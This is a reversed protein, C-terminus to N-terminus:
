SWAGVGQRPVTVFDYPALPGLLRLHIRGSWKAAFEDVVQKVEPLRHNEVLLAAHVADQEHTAEREVLSVCLPALIGLLAQTHTARKTMLAHYVIEGLRIREARTTADPTGHIQERLQVAEPTEDLVEQLVAHEVFRGKVVFETRGRLETLATFFEDHHPALLEDVIDLPSRMVAGFRLPLVPVQISTEDLLREHALLDDPTGIPRELEIESVLAGIQSHRVIGVRGRAAPAIQVQSPVIGYVYCATGPNILSGEEATRPTEEPRDFTRDTLGPDPLTPDPVPSGGTQGSPRPQNPVDFSGLDHRHTSGSVNPDYQPSGSVNPEQAPGTM